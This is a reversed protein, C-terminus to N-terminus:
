IVFAIRMIPLIEAKQYLTHQVQSKSFTTFARNAKVKTLGKDTQNVTGTYM